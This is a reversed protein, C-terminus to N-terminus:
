EKVRIQTLETSETKEAVAQQRSRAKRARDFLGSQRNSNKPESPLAQGSKQMLNATETPESAQTSSSDVVAPAANQTASTLSSIAKHESEVRLSSTAVAATQTASATANLRESTTRRTPQSLVKRSAIRQTSSGANLPQNSIVSVSQGLSTNRSSGATAEGGGILSDKSKKALYKEIDPFCTTEVIVRKEVKMSKDVMVIKGSDSITLKMIPSNMCYVDENLCAAKILKNNELMFAKASTNSYAILYPTDSIFILQKTINVDDRGSSPLKLVGYLQLEYKKGLMGSSETMLWIQFIDEDNQNHQYTILNNTNPVWAIAAPGNAKFNQTYRSTITPKKESLKTVEIWELKGKEGNKEISSIIFENSKPKALLSCKESTKLDYIARCKMSLCDYLNLAWSQSKNVPDYPALGCFLLHKKDVSLAINNASIDLPVVFNPSKYSSPIKSNIVFLEGYYTHKVVVGFFEADHFSVLNINRTSVFLLFPDATEHVFVNIIGKGNSKYRQATVIIGDSLIISDVIVYGEKIPKLSNRSVSSSEEQKKDRAATM